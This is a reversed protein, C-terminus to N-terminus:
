PRGPPLANILSFEMGAGFSRKFSYFFDSERFRAWRGKEIPQNPSPISNDTM